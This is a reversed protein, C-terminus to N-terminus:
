GFPKWGLGGAASAGSFLAGLVQGFPNSYVQQTQTGTSTGSQGYNGQVSALYSNLKNYPLNQEFNWRAVQDDLEKQSQGQIAGQANVAATAPLYNAQVYNGANNTAALQRDRETAYNGGYINTALNNLTTGLAQNNQDVAQNRAGSGYRGGAAFAASTGPATVTQYTRAVQDAAQGYTAALYPNTSPDLYKGNITDTATQNQGSLLPDVTGGMNTIQSLASKQEPTMGAVTSGQYYQPTYTDYLRNAESFAKTLYPQQPQWPGMNVNQSTTTTQPTSKGM